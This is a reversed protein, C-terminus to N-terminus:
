EATEGTNTVPKNSADFSPTVGRTVPLEGRERMARMAREGAAEIQEPTPRTERLRRRLEQGREWGEVDERHKRRRHMALLILAAVPGIGFSLAVFGITSLEPM